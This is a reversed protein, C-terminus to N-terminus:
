CLKVQNFNMECGTVLALQGSINKPKASQFLKIFNEILEPVLIAIIKCLDLLSNLAFSLHDSLKYNIKRAKVYSKNEFDDFNEM